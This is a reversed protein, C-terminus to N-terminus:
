CSYKGALYLHKWSAYFLSMSSIGFLEIYSILAGVFEIYTPISHVLDVIEKSIAELAITTKDAEM